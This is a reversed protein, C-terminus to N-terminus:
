KSFGGFTFHLQVYAGDANLSPGDISIKNVDTWESEIPAFFYGTKLGIAFFKKETLFLDAKLGIDLLFQENKLRTGKKPNSLLQNFNEITNDNIDIVFTHGGIGLMPALMLSKHNYVLYGVNFFGYDGRVQTTYIGNNKDALEYSFGEGGIIIKNIYGHGGGGFALINDSIQPLNNNSFATNLASIDQSALRFGFYGSGGYTGHSKNQSNAESFSLMFFIILLIEHWKFNFSTRM